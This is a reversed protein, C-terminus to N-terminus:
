SGMTIPIFHSSDSACAIHHQCCVNGCKRYSIINTHLCHCFSRRHSNTLNCCLPVSGVARWTTNHPGRGRKYVRYIHYFDCVLNPPSTCWKSGNTCTRGAFKVVGIPAARQWLFPQFGLNHDIFKLYLCADATTLYRRRCLIVCYYYYYYYYYYYDRDKRDQSLRRRRGSGM